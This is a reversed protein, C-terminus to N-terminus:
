SHSNIQSTLSDVREKLCWSVITQHTQSKELLDTFSPNTLLSTSQQISSDTKNSKDDDILATILKHIEESETLHKKLQKLLEQHTSNDSSIELLRQFSDHLSTARKLLSNLRKSQQQLLADQLLTVVTEQLVRPTTLSPPLWVSNELSTSKVRHLSKDAESTQSKTQSTTAKEKPNITIRGTLPQVPNTIESPNSNFFKQKVYFTILEVLTLLGGVVPIGQLIAYSRHGWCTVKSECKTALEWHRQSYPIGSATCVSLVAEGLSLNYGKSHTDLFM